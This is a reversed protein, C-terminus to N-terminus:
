EWSWKFKNKDRNPIFDQLGDLIEKFEPLTKSGLVLEIYASSKNDVRYVNEFVKFVIKVIENFDRPKENFQRSYIDNSYEEARIGLTELIKIHKQDFHSKSPIYQDGSVQMYLENKSKKFRFNIWCGDVVIMCYNGGIGSKTLHELAYALGEQPKPGRERSEELRSALDGLSKSDPSTGDPSERKSELSELMKVLKPSYLGERLGEEIEAKAAAEIKTALEPNELFIQRVEEIEPVQEVYHEGEQDVVSYFSETKVIMAHARMSVVEDKLRKTRTEVKLPAEFALIKHRYYLTIKKLYNTSSKSFFELPVFQTAYMPIYHPILAGQGTPVLSFASGSAVVQFGEPLDHLQISFKNNKFELVELKGSCSLKQTSIQQLIMSNFTGSYPMNPIGSHSQPFFAFVGPWQVIGPHPMLITPHAEFDYSGSFGSSSKEIRLTIEFPIVYNASINYDGIGNSSIFGQIFGDFYEKGPKSM